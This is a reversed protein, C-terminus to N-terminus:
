AALGPPNCRMERPIWRDLAVALPAAAPEALAVELLHWTHPGYVLYHPRGDRRALRVWQGAVRLHRQAACAAMASRFASADLEPQAALYRHVVREGIEPPIDRRADQILSVLDYAPHGIAANQFDLLGLQRLGVRDALWVLNGAFFDRHVFGRPGDVVPALMVELAAGIERRAAEPASGGFAAPWWWDLLTGLATRAMEAAGWLPLGPPPDARQMALLVEVAADFLEGATAPSLLVPFVDDGLDEELLLGLEPDAAIVEPPSLGIAALHRALRVFPGIDEPPPADMLIAPRPGGLLRLYRRFSADQALPVARAAGFGHRTLFGAILGDRRTM